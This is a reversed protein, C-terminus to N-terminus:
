STEGAPSSPSSVIAGYAICLVAILVIAPNFQNRYAEMGILALGFGAVMDAIGNASDTDSDSKFSVEINSVRELNMQPIIDFLFSRKLVIRKIKLEETTQFVQKTLISWCLSM